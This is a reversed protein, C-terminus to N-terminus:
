KFVVVFQHSGTTRITSISQCDSVADYELPLISYGNPMVDQGEEYEEKVEEKVEECRDVINSKLNICKILPLV